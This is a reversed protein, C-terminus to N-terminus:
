ISIWVSGDTTLFCQFYICLFEDLSIRVWCTRMFTCLTVVMTHTNNHIHTAASHFVTVSSHVAMVISATDKHNVAPTM